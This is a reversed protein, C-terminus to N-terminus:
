IIAAYSSGNIAASLHDSTAACSKESGQCGGITRQQAVKRAAKAAELRENSRLKERQRPLKWIARQQAVKRAAKAAELRENSRL